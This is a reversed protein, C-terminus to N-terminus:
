SVPCILFYLFDLISLLLLTDLINLVLKGVYNIKFNNKRVSHFIAGHHLKANFKPFLHLFFVCNCCSGFNFSKHLVYLGATNFSLSAFVSCFYRNQGLSFCEGLSAGQKHRPPSLVLDQSCSLRPSLQTQPM